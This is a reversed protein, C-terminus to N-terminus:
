SFTNKMLGLVRSTKSAASNVKKHWTGDSSILVGFDRDYETVVINKEVIFYDESNTQKGLQMVKCIKPSLKM